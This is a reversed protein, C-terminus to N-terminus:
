DRRTLALCLEVKRNLESTPAQHTELQQGIEQLIKRVGKIPTKKKKKQLHFHLCKLM